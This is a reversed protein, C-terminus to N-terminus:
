GARRSATPSACARRSTARSSRRRAARVALRERARDRPRALRDRGRARGPRVDGGHRRARRGPRRRPDDGALLPRDPLRRRARRGRRRTAGRELADAVHEDMKAAVGENNLPGMTTATPSRTASCSGSPSSARSGRSSSARSTATCSCGSARPAARAPASSARPSPRRPPSRRPRRRRARRGPRQRGARAALAKGAAAAAVKRGTETSGIFGVGHTGPNARSRTASPRARGPSSTSSARRCTPRSWASPSRSRARGGDDVGADLRRHQRVRARARDARGADHVALEVAHDRRDVGRPRRVLLVRKGPSM